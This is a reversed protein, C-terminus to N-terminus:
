TALRVWCHTYVTVLNALFHTQSVQEYKGFKRCNKTVIACRFHNNILTNVECHENEMVSNAYKTLIKMIFPIKYNIRVIMNLTPSSIRKEM